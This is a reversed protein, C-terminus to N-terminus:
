QMSKVLATAKAVRHGRQPESNQFRVFRFSCKFCFPPHPRCASCAQASGRALGCVSRLLARLCFAASFADGRGESPRTPMGMSRETAVPGRRSAKARPARDDSLRLEDQQRMNWCYRAVPSTEHLFRHAARRPGKLLHHIHVTHAALTPHHVLTPLTLKAQNSLTAVPQVDLSSRQQDLCINGHQHM